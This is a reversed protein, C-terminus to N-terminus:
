CGFSEHGFDTLPQAVIDAGMTHEHLVVDGQTIHLWRSVGSIRSRHQALAEHHEAVMESIQAIANLLSLTRTELRHLQDVMEKDSDFM